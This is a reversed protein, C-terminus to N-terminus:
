VVAVAAQGPVDGCQLEHGEVYCRGHVVVVVRSAGVGEKYGSVCRLYGAANIPTEVHVWILGFDFTGRTRWAAFSRDRKCYCLGFIVLATCIQITSQLM